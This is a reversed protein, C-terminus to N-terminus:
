VCNGRYCFREAEAGIGCAGGEDNIRAQAFAMAALSEEQAALYNKEQVYASSARALRQLREELAKLEVARKEQEAQQQQVYAETGKTGRM